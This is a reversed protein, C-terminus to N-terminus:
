TQGRQRSSTGIGSPEVDAVAKELRSEGYVALIVILEEPDHAFQLIRERFRRDGEDVLATCTYSSRMLSVGRDTSVEGGLRQYEWNRERLDSTMPPAM